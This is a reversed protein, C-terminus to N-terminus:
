YWTKQSASENRYLPMQDGNIVPPDIGYKKIFFKRVTWVNQLYDEIRRVLDEKKISFRKNLKRLSVGYEDEWEKIWQSRFRLQFEPQTPNHILCEAFLEKVKLKFLHKPLREKLAKPVNVFWSFLESRIEPTKRKRSGGSARAKKVPHSASNRLDAINEFARAPVKIARQFDPHDNPVDKTDTYFERVAKSYFGWKPKVAVHRKRRYNYKTKGHNKEVEEDYQKKCKQVVKVLELKEDNNYVANAGRKFNM